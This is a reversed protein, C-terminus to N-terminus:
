YVDFTFAPGDRGMVQVRGPGVSSDMADFADRHDNLWDVPRAMGKANAIYRDYGWTNAGHYRRVYLWAMSGDVEAVAHDATVQSLFEGDEGMRSADGDVPYRAGRAVDARVCITGPILISRRAPRRYRWDVWYLTRDAVFFYLQSTLCSGADDGLLEGAHEMQVAVRSSHYRDDDDWQIVYDGTAGAVAMNRLYGLTHGPPFPIIRYDLTAGRCYAHLQEQHEGGGDTVVVLERDAWTQRGFDRIADSALSERGPQTVM